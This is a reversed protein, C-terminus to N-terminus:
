RADILNAGNSNKVSRSRLRALAMESRWVSRSGNLAGVSQCDRSGTTALLTLRSATCRATM